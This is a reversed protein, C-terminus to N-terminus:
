GGAAPLSWFRRRHSACLTYGGADPATRLSHPDACACNGLTVEDKGPGACGQWGGIRPCWVEHILFPGGNRVEASFRAEDSGEPLEVTVTASIGSPQGDPTRLDPYRITAAGARGEIKPRGSEHSDCYRGIWNEEDPAVVRLLRGSRPDGLHAVGTRLDEIRVLSGTDDDFELAILGNALRM